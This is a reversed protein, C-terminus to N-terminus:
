VWLRKRPKKWYYIKRQLTKRWTNDYTDGINIIRVPVSFRKIEKYSGAIYDSTTYFLRIEDGPELSHRLLSTMEIVEDGVNNYTARARIIRVANPVSSGSQNKFDEWVDSTGSFNLMVRNFMDYDSEYPYVITCDWNREIRKRYRNVKPIFSFLSSDPYFEIFSCPTENNLIRNTSIEETKESDINNKVEANPINIYGTNYFGYWGDVERLGDFFAANFSKITDLQYMRVKQRHSKLINDATTGTDDPIIAGKDEDIIREVPNGNYDIAFDFITNFVNENVGEKTALKAHNFDNTRLLHNNFIDYGCHYKFNGIKENSLETDRIAFVRDVSDGSKNLPGYEFIDSFHGDNRSIASEVLSIASSSGEKYVPETVANYLVNTCVPNVTFIMRYNECADREEVYLDYLGLMGQTTSFPILRSKASLDVNLSKEANDQSSNLSKEQLFKRQM